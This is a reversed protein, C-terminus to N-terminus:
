VIVILTSPCKYRGVHTQNFSYFFFNIGHFIDIVDNLRFMINYIDITLVRTGAFRDRIRSIIEM